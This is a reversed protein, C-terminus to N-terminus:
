AVVAWEGSRAASIFCQVARPNTGRIEISLRHEHEHLWTAADQTVFKRDGIDVVVHAADPVMHLVDLLYRDGRQYVAMSEDVGSLDILITGTIM